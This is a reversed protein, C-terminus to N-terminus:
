KHINILIYRKSFMNLCSVSCEGMTIRVHMLWLAFLWFANLRIQWLQYCLTLVCVPLARHTLIFVSSVKGGIVWWIQLRIKKGRLEVTKIKFDVGALWPLHSVCTPMSLYLCLFKRRQDKSSKGEQRQIWNSASPSCQTHKRTPHWRHLACSSNQVVLCFHHQVTSM